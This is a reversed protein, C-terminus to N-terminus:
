EFHKYRFYKYGINRDFVARSLGLRNAVSLYAGLAVLGFVAAYILAGLKTTPLFIRHLGEAIGVVVIFFGVNVGILKSLQGYHVHFEHGVKRLCLFAIFGFSISTALIAGFGQLWAVLPYQLVAKVLLGILLYNMAKKSYHLAQLITLSNIAMGLVLSQLLNWFLYRGGLQSFSFFIGNTEYALADLITVAPLLAFTLLKLNQLVLEGIRERPAGKSSALIPLTTEAMAIALSVVVTTIKTPNASFLTYLYQIANASYHTTSQVIQKFFLQDVLQSLTIGSGVIVFPVSEYVITMLIHKLSEPALPESEQAAQRYAGRQKRYYLALYLYSAVAGIVAGLVSYYVAVVYSVHWVEIVLYTMVLIFIVRIFQEWLQSIGFPKLDQNGQFWGRIISMSPLIIIAPVLVRIANTAHQLSVVPSNRAIVPALAYLLIGCVLGSALMVMFGVKTLRKANLFRNEGNYFAVRRAVASPFGATGLSIFLAYPTYATNFLAQAVSQQHPNGIMYLWPILYLIGLVRSFISGFSLWFSGSMLKKNM